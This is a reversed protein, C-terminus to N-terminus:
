RHQPYTRPRGRYALTGGGDVPHLRKVQDDQLFCPPLAPGQRHACRLAALPILPFFVLDRDRSIAIATGCQSVRLGANLPQGIFQAGFVLVDLACVFLQFAGVFLELGGIFFHLGDVFLQLGSVLFHFGGLFLQLGQVFLQGRHVVFQVGLHLVQGAGVVVHVVQQGAGTNRRHKQVGLQANQTERGRRRRENVQDIAIDAPLHRVNHGVELAVGAQQLVCLAHQVGQHRYFRLHLRQGVPPKGQANAGVTRQLVHNFAHHDSKLVDRAQLLGLVLEATHFLQRPKRHYHTICVVGDGHM